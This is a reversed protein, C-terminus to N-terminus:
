MFVLTLSCFPQYNWDFREISRPGLESWLTLGVLVGVGVTGRVGVRVTGRGRVRVMGRVM